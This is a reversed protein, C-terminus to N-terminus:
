AIIEFPRIGSLGVIRVALVSICVSHVILGVIAINLIVSISAVVIVACKLNELALSDSNSSLMGLYM